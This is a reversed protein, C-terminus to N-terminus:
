LREKYERQRTMNKGNQSIEITIIITTTITNIFYKSGFHCIQINKRYLLYLQKIISYTYSFVYDCFCMYIFYM